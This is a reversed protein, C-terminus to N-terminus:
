NIPLLLVVNEVHHTHPFMDVAQSKEIYYKERLLDLDRAQTAPNCSVYVIRKPSVDLIKQVVDPHMGERPPDTIIVDPTGNEQIFKDNLVKRMDGVFFSCNSVNNKLANQKADKIADEVSEIGVIKKAEASNYIAISGTGTYLDYVTEDPQINALNKATEYLVKAQETNTQFFSKPRVMFTYDGLKEEIYSEGSHNHVPLDYITDNAKNNVVYLLSTIFSFQEKLGDLILKIAKENKQSVVLLVMWHGLSTRRIMLNRLLGTQQRIDFFPLDNEEAIEKVFSRIDNAEPPMLHCENLDLVKDFRGPVHFGLANLKEPNEKDFDDIWAKNSFTFEVKNRYEKTETAGLIPLYEKPEVKGIRQFADKVEQEKFELQHEYKLHQWKCGGCTGFHACFSDTRQESPTILNEIHAMLFKKKKGSVRLDAVDGPAGYKVFVVKENVRAVCNGQSAAPGVTVNELLEPIYKSRRRGM